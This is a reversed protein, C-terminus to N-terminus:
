TANKKVLWLEDPNHPSTIIVIDELEPDRLAKRLRYLQQKADVPDDAKIVVGHESALAM